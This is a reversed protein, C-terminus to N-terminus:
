YEFIQFFFFDEERKGKCYVHLPHGDHALCQRDEPPECELLLSLGCVLACFCCCWMQHLPALLSKPPQPLLALPGQETFICSSGCSASLPSSSFTEKEITDLAAHVVPLHEGHFTSEPRCM